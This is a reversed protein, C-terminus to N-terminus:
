TPWTGAVQKLAEKLVQDDRRKGQYYYGSRPYGLTRCVLSVPYERALKM